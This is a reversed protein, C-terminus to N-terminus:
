EKFHLESGGGDVVDCDSVILNSHGKLITLIGVVAMINSTELIIEVIDDRLAFRHTTKHVTRDAGLQQL